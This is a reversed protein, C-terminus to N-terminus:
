LLSLATILPTIASGAYDFPRARRDPLSVFLDTLPMGTSSLYMVIELLTGQKLVDRALGGDGGRANRSLVASDRWPIDM